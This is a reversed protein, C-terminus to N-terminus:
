LLLDLKDLVEIKGLSKKVESQVNISLRTELESKRIEGGIECLENYYAHM